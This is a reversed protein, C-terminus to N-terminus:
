IKNTKKNLTIKLSNTKKKLRYYRAVQAALFLLFLCFSCSLFSSLMM